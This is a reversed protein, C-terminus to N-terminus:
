LGGCLMIFNNIHKIIQIAEMGASISAIDNAAGATAM